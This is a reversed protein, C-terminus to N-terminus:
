VWENATFTTVGGNQREQEEIWASLDADEDESTPVVWEVDAPDIADIDFEGTEEDYATALPDPRFYEPFFDKVREMTTLTLLGRVRDIRQNEKETEDLMDLIELAMDQVVSNPARLSGRARALRLHQHM